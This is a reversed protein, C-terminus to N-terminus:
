LEYNIVLNRLYDRKESLEQISPTHPYKYMLDNIRKILSRILERNDELYDRLDEIEEAEHNQIAEIEDKIESLEELDESDVIDNHILAHTNFVMAIMICSFLLYKKM